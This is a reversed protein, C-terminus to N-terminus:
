LSLCNSLIVKTGVQEAGNTQSGCESLRKGLIPGWLLVSTGNAIMEVLLQPQPRINLVKKRTHLISCFSKHLYYLSYDVSGTTVVVM